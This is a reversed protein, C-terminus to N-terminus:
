RSVLYTRSMRDHWGLRDEDFCAWLFGLGASLASVIMAAARRRRATRGVFEGEFSRIEIGAARMGATGGACVIAIYHYGAWFLALTLAAAMLAARNHALAGAGIAIIPAVKMLVFGFIGLAAAIVGSDVLAAFVRQALAAPQVPLEFGRLLAEQQESPEDLTIAPVIPLLDQELIPAAELIRPTQVVPEALEEVPQYFQAAPRPFEIIKRLRPPKPPPAPEASPEVAAVTVVPEPESLAATDLADAFMAAVEFASATTEPQNVLEPEPPAAITVNGLVFRRNTERQTEFDM